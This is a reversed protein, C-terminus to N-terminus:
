GQSIKKATYLRSVPPIQEVFTLKKFTSIFNASRRHRCLVWRQCKCLRYPGADRWRWSSLNYAFVYSFAQLSGFVQLQLRGFFRAFHHDHFCLALVRQLQNWFAKTVSDSTWVHHRFSHEWFLWFRCLRGRPYFSVFFAFSTPFLLFFVELDGM